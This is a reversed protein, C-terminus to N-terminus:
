SRLGMGLSGCSRSGVDPRLVPMREIRGGIVACATNTAGHGRRPYKAIGEIDYIRSEYVIRMIETVRQDTRIRWSRRQRVIIRSSGEDYREMSEHLSTKLSAWAGTFDAWTVIESGFSDRSTVPHQITIRRNLRGIVAMSQGM